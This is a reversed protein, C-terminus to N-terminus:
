IVGKKVPNNFYNQKLYVDPSLNNKSKSKTAKEIYNAPAVFGGQLKRSIVLDWQILEDKPNNSSSIGLMKGNFLFNFNTDVYFCNTYDVADMIIPLEKEKSVYFLNCIEIFKDMDIDTKTSFDTLVTEDELTVEKTWDNGVFDYKLEALSSIFENDTAKEVLSFDGNSNALLSQYTDIDGLFENMNQLVFLKSSGTLGKFQLYNKTLFQNQFILQLLNTYINAIDEIGLGRLNRNRSKITNFKINILSSDIDINNMLENDKLYPNNFFTSNSAVSNYNISTTNQVQLNIIGLPFMLPIIVIKKSSTFSSYWASPTLKKQKILGLGKEFEYNDNGYNFDGCILLGYVSM